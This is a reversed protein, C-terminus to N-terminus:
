TDSSLSVLVALPLLIVQELVLILEVELVVALILLEMQVEIPRVQTQDEEVLDGLSYLAVEVVAPVGVLLTVV